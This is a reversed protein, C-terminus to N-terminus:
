VKVGSEKVTKSHQNLKGEQLCKWCTHTGEKGKVVGTGKCDPCEEGM